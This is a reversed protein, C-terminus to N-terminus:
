KKGDSKRHDANRLIERAFRMDAQKLKLVKQPSLIRKFKQYYAKELNAEDIQRNLIEDVMKLYEDDKANSNKRLVKSKDHTEKMMKFRKAQMENYLPFLQASEEPTIGVEQVLYAMKQANFKEIDFPPRGKDGQAYIFSVSVFLLCILTFVKKM